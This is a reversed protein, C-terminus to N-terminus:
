WPWLWVQFVHTCEDENMVGEPGVVISAEDDILESQKCFEIKDNLLELSNNGPNKHLAEILIDSPIEVADFVNEPYAEVFGNMHLLDYNAHEGYTNYM